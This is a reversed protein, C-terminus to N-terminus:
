ARITTSGCSRGARKMPPSPSSPRKSPPLSSMTGTLSPRRKEEWTTSSSPFPHLGRASTPCSSTASTTTPAFPAYLAGSASEMFRLFGHFRHVEFEVRRICEMAAFVADEALMKRVPCGRAAILRFYEFAVTDRDEQGSRLLLDLEKLGDRDLEKLRAEARRARDPDSRVFVTSQGVSLQRTGSVLVAEEDPYALLFATLFAEKTGDYFYIM